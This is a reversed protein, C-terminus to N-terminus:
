QWKMQRVKLQYNDAEAELFAQSVDNVFTDVAPDVIDTRGGDRWLKTGRKNINTAIAWVASEDQGRADVWEMLNSIMERSPKKDPTPRRGTQVTMFFPRGYLTLSYKTGEQKLEIRLSQSTKVTANTGTSGLNVRINNILDIGKDQIVEFIEPM